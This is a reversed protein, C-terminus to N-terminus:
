LFHEPFVHIEFGFDIEFADANNGPSVYFKAHGLAADYNGLALCAEMANASVWLDGEGSDLKSQSSSLISKAVGHSDFTVANRVDDQHARWALSVANVGHWERSAEAEVEDPSRGSRRPVRSSQAM